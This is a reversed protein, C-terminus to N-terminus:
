VRGELVAGDKSAAFAAGAGRVVSLAREPRGTRLYLEALQEVAEPQGPERALIERLRAAADDHFLSGELARALGRTAPIDAPQAQLALAYAWLAAFPRAADTYYDGLLRAPTPDDSRASAVRA